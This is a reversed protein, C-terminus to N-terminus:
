VYKVLVFTFDPKLMGEEASNDLSKVSMICFWFVILFCKKKSDPELVMKADFILFTCSNIKLM